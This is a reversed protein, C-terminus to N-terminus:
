WKEEESINDNKKFAQKTKIKEIQRQILLEAILDAADTQPNAKLLNKLKNENVDVRYLLQILKNFDHLLLENIYEVLKKEFDKKQLETLSNQNASFLQEILDM